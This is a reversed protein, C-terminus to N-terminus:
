RAQRRESQVQSKRGTDQPRYVEDVTERKQRLFPPLEFGDCEAPLAPPPAPPGDGFGPATFGQENTATQKPNEHNQIVQQGAINTQKVVAFTDGSRAPRRYEALALMLRRYTNSARDAYEHVATIGEVSTQRNAMETLRMVLTHAYLLQSVLMEEAPDKPAMRKIVDRAYPAALPDM